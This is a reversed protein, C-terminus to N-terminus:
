AMDNIIALLEAVVVAVPKMTEVKRAPLAAYIPFRARIVQEERQPSRAFSRGLQRSVTEAVCTELDFAPLLVFTLPSLAITEHLRPYSPHVDRRYTMFGSSLAAVGLHM